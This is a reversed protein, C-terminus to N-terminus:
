ATTLCSALRRPQSCSERSVTSRRRATVTEPKSQVAQTCAAPEVRAILAEQVGVAEQRESPADLLEDVAATLLDRGNLHADVNDPEHEHQGRDEM